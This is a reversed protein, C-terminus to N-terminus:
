DNNKGKDNPTLMGIDVVSAQRGMGIAEAISNFELEPDGKVFMVKESRMAFIARLRSVIDAKEIPQQNIAYSPPAGNLGARVQLVITTDPSTPPAPEHSPPPAQAKLGPQKMPVIVMFIILLVLLVDILPTVNIEAQQTSSGTSFSM